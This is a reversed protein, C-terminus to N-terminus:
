ACRGIHITIRWGPHSRRPTPSKGDDFMPPATPLVVVLPLLTILLVLVFMLASIADMVGSGM